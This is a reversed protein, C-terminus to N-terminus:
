VNIIEPNLIASFEKSGIDSLAVFARDTTFLSKGNSIVIKDPRFAPLVGRGSVTSCPIVREPPLDIRSKDAIIVPLDSFPERLKNGSDLFASLRYERGNKYVTILFIERKATIRNYVRIIVVSIVYAFLASMLLAAASIDFYVIGGSLKVGRPSLTFVVAAVAGLVILNSFYFVALNRLLVAFGKFGFAILVIILSATLKGALSIFIDRIGLLIVLAYAGGFASAALARLQKIGQKNLKSTLLLLLYTIFFNIVFLVDVYIVIFCGGRM